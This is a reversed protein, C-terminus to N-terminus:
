QDLRRNRNAYTYEWAERMLENATKAPRKRSTKRLGNTQARDTSELKKKSNKSKKDTTSKATM